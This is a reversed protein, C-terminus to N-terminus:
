GGGDEDVAALAARCLALALPTEGFFLAHLLDADGALVRGGPDGVLAALARAFAVDRDGEALRGVVRLGAAVSASYPPVRRGYRYRARGAPGPPLAFREGGRDGLHTVWEEAHSGDAYCTPWRLPLRDVRDGFVREQIAVDIWRASHKM